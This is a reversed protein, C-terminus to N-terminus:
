KDRKFPFDETSIMRHIITLHPQDEFLDDPYYALNQAGTKVLIRLWHELTPTKIWYKKDWNYTQIKFITKKLGEPFSGASKVLNQMWDEIDKSPIGEMYPYAMIVVYDYAALCDKYDQALWEQSQPDTLVPAYLTRAFKTEPRYSLVANKLLRTLSILQQTKVKMWEQKQEQTLKEPDNIDGGTIKQYYALADKQFDEFDNLYGDDQFVVGNISSHIALDEYLTKLTEQAQSSFPSLRQYWSTSLQITKNKFERVRLSDNLEQDPLTISLMPMWAYVEIELRSKIQHVVRNFLDARMPLIRNPFYVEKINGTGDPDAFAQLYVTSPHLAKIRELFEDLNRETQQPDDDYILDLDFQVIRKMLLPEKTLGLDNLLQKLDPNKYVLFRPIAQLDHIDAREDSLTFAIPLGAKQAEELSAHNYQGYPWALSRIKKETNKELITKSLQLDGAIRQRYAEDNEYTHQSSDYSYNAGPALNGQPNYILGKHLAHSHSAMEVLPSAAAERLQQWTMIKQPINEPPHDIWSTVVALVCPIHYRQLLPFVFDYFSIYADDFTLLISKSPLPKIGEQAKVIDDLSVFHFDHALFYEITSIFTEQDVGYNDLHVEQPIDHYCLAIFTQEGEQANAPNNLVAGMVALLFFLRTLKLIKRTTKQTITNM